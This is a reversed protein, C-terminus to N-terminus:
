QLVTVSKVIRRAGINVDLFHLGKPVDGLQVEFNQEGETAFRSSEHVIQGLVNRVRMTIAQPADLRLRVTFSGANPEPYIDMRADAGPPASVSTPGSPLIVVEGNTRITRYCGSDSKWIAFVLPCHLTDRLPAQLVSFQLEALTAPSSRGALRAPAHTQLEVGGPIRTFSCPVTELVSGKPLALLDFRLLADMFLITCRFPPLTDGLSNDDLMVPIRVSQRLAVTGKELRMSASPLSLDLPATYFKTVTTDMGCTDRMALDVVRREGDMCSTQYTVICEYVGGSVSTLELYIGTLRAPTPSFLYRGYARESLNFLVDHNRDAGCGIAYVRVRKARAFAICSDLTIVSGDDHGNSLVLVAREDKTRATDVAAISAHVADFLMAKGSDHMLPVLARLSDASSTAGSYVATSDRFVRLSAEDRSWTLIDLMNLTHQRAEDMGSAQMHASADIVMALSLSTWQKPEPCWISETQVETGNERISYFKRAETYLRRGECAISYYLEITPWNNVIRKFNLMRQASAVFTCALFLLAFFFRNM